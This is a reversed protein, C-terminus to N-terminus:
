VSKILKRAAEKEEWFPTYVFPVELWVQQDIQSRFTAVPKKYKELLERAKPCDKIYLDSEHHDVELGAALCDAYLDNPKEM